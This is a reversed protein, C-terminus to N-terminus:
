VIGKKAKIQDIISQAIHKPVREYGAFVNQFVARGSTQNRADEIMAFSARVPFLARLKISAGEQDMSEVKGFYQSILSSLKGINDMSGYISSEFYPELLVASAENMLMFIAERVMPVIEGMDKDEPDSALTAEEVVVKLGRISEGVIPGHKFTGTIASVIIEEDEASLQAAQPDAKALLIVANNDPTVKVLGTIEEEPWPLGEEALRAKAHKTIGTKETGLNV